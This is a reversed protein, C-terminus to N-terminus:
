LVYNVYTKRGFPALPRATAQTVVGCPPINRILTGSVVKSIKFDGLRETRLRLDV